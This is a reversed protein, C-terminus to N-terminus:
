CTMASQSADAKVVAAWSKPLVSNTNPQKLASRMVQVQPKQRPARVYEKMVAIGFPHQVISVPPEQVSRVIWTRTARVGQGVRFTFSPRAQWGQLFALLAQEGCSCPLGSVEWLKGLFMDADTPRLKHLTQEFNSSLVRVGFGRGCPVVGIGLDGLFSAKDRAQQLTLGFPLPVIKFIERDSPGELFLTTWMGDLGSTRLLKQQDQASNLSVVMQMSDVHDKLRTPPHVDLVSVGACNKLWSRAAPVARTQVAQWAESSVHKKEISLLAKYSENTLAAQPASCKLVAAQPGLQYLYRQRVQLKGQKDQVLVSM